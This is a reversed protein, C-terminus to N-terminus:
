RAGARLSVVIEGVHRISPSRGAYSGRGHRARPRRQFSRICVVVFLAMPVDRGTETVRPRQLLAGEEVIVLPPSCARVTRPDIAASRRRHRLALQFPRIYKATRLGPKIYHTLLLSPAAPRVDKGSVEVFL